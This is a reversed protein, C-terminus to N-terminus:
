VGIDIYHKKPKAFKGKEVPLSLMPDVWEKNESTEPKNENNENSSGGQGNGHEREETGIKKGEAGVAAITRENDHETNKNIVAANQAMQTENQKNIKAQGASLDTPKTNLMQIEIARVAM